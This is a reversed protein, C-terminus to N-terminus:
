SSKKCNRRRRKIFSKRNAEIGLSSNKEFALALEYHASELIVKKEEGSFISFAPQKFYFQFLENKEEISYEKSYYDIKNQRAEWIDNQIRNDLYLTELSFAKDYLPSAIWQTYDKKGQEFILIAASRMEMLLGLHQLQENLITVVDVLENSGHM